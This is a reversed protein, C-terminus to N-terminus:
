RFKRQIDRRSLYTVNEPHIKIIRDGVIDQHNKKAQRSTFAIATIMEPPIGGKVLVEAQVDTPDNENLHQEARTSHHGDIEEFMSEFSHATSLQEEFKGRIEASAANKRCFLVEREVLVKPTIGLVCWDVKNDKVRYKYFMPDNPHHISLSITDTHNDLRHEDNCKVDDSLDDKCKLGHELISPLNELQTFHILVGIKRRRIVEIIEDKKSM